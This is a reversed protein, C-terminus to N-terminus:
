SCLCSENENGTNDTAVNCYTTYAKHVTIHVEAM